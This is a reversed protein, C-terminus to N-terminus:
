PERWGPRLSRELITLREPREVFGLSQYLALAATNDTATNVLVREVNRRRMWDLADVVLLHALGRRRASPDVAIRQLYGWTSARGSISFAVMQGNHRVCRARYRPTATVIDHLAASNNAWPAPFASRDIVAADDLQSPRLRRLRADPQVNNRAPAPDDLALELLSLTDIVEFGAALFAPASPPFLAGTRLTTAGQARADTVWSEVHDRDPVMHHDLLVLHAVDADDPWRSLRARVPHEAATTNV